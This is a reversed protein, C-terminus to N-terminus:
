RERQARVFRRLAADYRGMQFGAIAEWRAADFLDGSIILRLPRYYEELDADMRSTNDTVRADLYGGPVKRDFHAARYPPRVTAPLRAVLADSLGYVDIVVRYPSTKFGDIGIRKMVLPKLMATDSLLERYPSISFFEDRVGPEKGYFLGALGRPFLRQHEPPGPIVLSFNRCSSMSWALLWGAMVFGAFVGALKVARVQDWVVDYLGLYCVWLCLLLGPLLFRGVMYDGGVRAVYVMELIVALVMLVAARDLHSLRGRKSWCRALVGFYRWAAVSAALAAMMGSLMDMKPFYHFLYCGGMEWYLRTPLGAGLKAYSTNPLFFGYYVLSFLLWSVLPWARVILKMLFAARAGRGMGAMQPLIAALLGPLMAVWADLRNVMALAAIFVLKSIAEPSRIFTHWFWALLTLVMPTELGNISQQGFVPLVAAPLLVLLGRAVVGAKPLSDLILWLTLGQLVASIFVSVWLFNGVLPYLAIHLFLWLPNTYVQVREDINWRLGHGYLANDAVRYTIYADDVVRAQGLMLILSAAFLVWFALKEYSMSPSAPAASM